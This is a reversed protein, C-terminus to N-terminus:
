ESAGAPVPVLHARLAAVAYHRELRGTRLLDAAKAVGAADTGTVLWTAPDDGDRV